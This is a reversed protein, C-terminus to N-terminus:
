ANIGKSLKSSDVKILVNDDREGQAAAIIRRQHQVGELLRKLFIRVCFRQQVAVPADLIGATGELFFHFAGPYALAHGAHPAAKVVSWHLSEPADQFCFHIVAIMELIVFSQPLRDACINVKIVIVPVLFLKATHCRRFENGADM